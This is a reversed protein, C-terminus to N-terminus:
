DIHAPQASGVMPPPGDTGVAVGGMTTGICLPNHLVLELQVVCDVHQM